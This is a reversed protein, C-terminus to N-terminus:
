WRSTWEIRDPLSQIFRVEGGTYRVEGQWYRELGRRQEQYVPSREYGRAQAETDWLTILHSVDPDDWNRVFWRGNLGPLNRHAVANKRFEWEYEQWRRPLVKVESIRMQM